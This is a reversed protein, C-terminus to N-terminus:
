GLRAGLALTRGGVLEAATLAKKGELQGRVIRLAGAGCAVIANGKAARVITGPAADHALEDEVKTALVKFLKGGLTTFAGPWSTMARAHDHVARAPKTWDIRGDEKELIRAMTAAAHDQLSPALEGRVAREVDARVVEAALAGIRVGLEDTTEDDGIALRHTSLVPGTDMGEDMQMLCVGTEREGNAIAWTIPAAGRYKPLLSAHLNLCGKAPADLVAKPLIRGYAIVLAVDARLGSLWSAFEPTRVKTPQHVDLGLELARAKAPPAAVALGRGAPKDPQCVVAVVEAIEALADLSPVAIHPTGFFVARM